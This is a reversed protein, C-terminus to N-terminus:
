DSNESDYGDDEGTPPQKILFTPLRQTANLPVQLRVPDHRQLLMRLETGGRLFMESRVRDLFAETRVCDELKDDINIFNDHIWRTQFQSGSELLAQTRQWTMYDDFLITMNHYRKYHVIAELAYSIANGHKGAALAQKAEDEATRGAVYAKITYAFRKARQLFEDQQVVSLGRDWADFSGLKFDHISVLLFQMAANYHHALFASVAQNYNKEGKAYILRALTKKTDYATSFEKVFRHMSQGQTKLRLEYEDKLVQHRQLVNKRYRAQKTQPFWEFRKNLACSYERSTMRDGLDVFSRRQEETPAFYVRGMNAWLFKDIENELKELEQEYAYYHSISQRAHFSAGKHDDQGFAKAALKNEVYGLQKLHIVDLLLNACLMYSPFRTRSAGDGDLKRVCYDCRVLEYEAVASESFHRAEVLEWNDLAQVAKTQLMLAETYMANRFLDNPFESNTEVNADLKQEFRLEEERVALRRVCTDHEVCSLVDM